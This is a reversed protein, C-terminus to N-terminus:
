WRDPLGWAWKLDILVQDEDGIMSIKLLCGFTTLVSTNLLLYWSLNPEVETM